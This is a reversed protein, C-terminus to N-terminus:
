KLGFGGVGAWVTSDVAAPDPRARRDRLELKGVAVLELWRLEVGNVTDNNAYVSPFFTIKADFL